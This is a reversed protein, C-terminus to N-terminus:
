KGEDEEGLYRQLYKMDQKLQEKQWDIIKQAEEFAIIGEHAMASTFQIYNAKEAIARAFGMVYQMEGKSPSLKNDIEKQREFMADIGKSWKEINM